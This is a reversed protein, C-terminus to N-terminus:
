ALTVILWPVATVDNRAGIRDVLARFIIRGGAFGL